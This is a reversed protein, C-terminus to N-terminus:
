AGVGGFRLLVKKVAGGVPAELAVGLIGKATVSTLGTADALVDAAATPAQDVVVLDGSAPTAKTISAAFKISAEGDVQMIGYYGKTITGIAIGAILGTVTADAVDPTVVANVIDSWFLVTGRAVTGSATAVVKVCQYVGEYLTGVTTDSLRLAEATDFYAKTGLMGPYGQIISGSPSATPSGLVPVNEKNLFGTVLKWSSFNNVMQAM